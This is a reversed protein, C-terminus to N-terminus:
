FARWSTNSKGEFKKIGENRILRTIVFLLRPIKLSKKTSSVHIEEVTLELQIYMFYKGRSNLFWCIISLDNPTLQNISNWIYKMLQNCSTCDTQWSSMTGHNVDRIEDIWWCDMLRCQIWGHIREDVREKVRMQNHSSYNCM